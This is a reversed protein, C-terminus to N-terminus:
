LFTLAVVFAWAVCAHAVGCTVIQNAHHKGFGGGDGVGDQKLCTSRLQRSQQQCHAHMCAQMGSCATCASAHGFTSGAQLAAGAQSQGSVLRELQHAPFSPSQQHVPDATPQKNMTCHTQHSAM